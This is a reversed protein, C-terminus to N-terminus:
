RLERLLVRGHWTLRVDQGLPRIFLQCDMEKELQRIRERVTNPCCGIIKAAQYLNNMAVIEFFDLLDYDGNWYHPNKSM